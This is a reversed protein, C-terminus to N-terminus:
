PASAAIKGETTAWWSKWFQVYPADDRGDLWGRSLSYKDTEPTRFPTPGQATLAGGNLINSHNQITPDGSPLMQALFPLTDRTHIFDLAMVACRRLEADSSSAIKGLYPTALPNRVGCIAPILGVAHLNAIPGTDNAVDALVSVDNSELLGTTGVLKLSPDSSTDLTQYLGQTVATGGIGLLGTVLQSLQTYDTYVELASALEVAIRDSLTLPPSATAIAPAGGKPVPFYAFEFPYRGQLVGLLTWLGSGGKELFWLGYNGKLDKNASM